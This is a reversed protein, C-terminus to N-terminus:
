GKVCRSLTAGPERHVRVESPDKVFYAIAQKLIDRETKTKALERRM